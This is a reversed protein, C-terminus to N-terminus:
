AAVREACSGCACSTATTATAYYLWVPANTTAQTMTKCIDCFHTGGRVRTWGPASM